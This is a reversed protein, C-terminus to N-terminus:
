MEPPPVPLMDGNYTASSEGCEDYSIRLINGPDDQVDVHGGILATACSATDFDIGPSRVAFPVVPPGPSDPVAAQCAEQDSAAVTSCDVPTSAFAITGQAIAMTGNDFSGDLTGDYILRTESELYEGGQVVGGSYSLGYGTGDETATVQLDHDVAFSALTEGGATLTMQLDMASHFGSAADMDDEDMLKLTGELGFGFLECDITLTTEKGPYGDGDSDAGDSLMPVCGEISPPEADADDAFAFVAVFAKLGEGQSEARPNGLANISFGLVTDIQQSAALGTAVERSLPDPDSETAPTNAATGCAALGFGLVAGVVMWCWVRSCCAPSALAEKM